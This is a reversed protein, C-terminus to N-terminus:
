DEYPELVYSSQQQDFGVAARGEAIHEEFQKRVQSQIREAEPLDNACIQRISVPLPIRVRDAAPEQAGGRLATKVRSSRLWWEAVLRDTPLGAHLPSSTRGYCNPIYRRVIAGLRALNFHANKLQLPDFTWEILDIGREIAEDRQAYKLLRGVGQDQYEPVVGVMHSHLHVAGEHAGAYALAFGIAREQDYAVLVQGGSEKAVVFMQEPVTDLETYGWIRRQLEVCVSMDGVDKPPRIVIDPQKLLGAVEPM